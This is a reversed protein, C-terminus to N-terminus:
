SLADFRSYIYDFLKQNLPKLDNGSEPIFEFINDQSDVLFFDGDGADELAVFGQTCSFNNHLFKTKMVMDSNLKQNDTIGFLEVFKFALYGYELIYHKLQEGLVIGLEEEIRSLFDINVRNSSFEFPIKNMIKEFAIM